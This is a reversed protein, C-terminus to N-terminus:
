HDVIYLQFSQDLKKDFFILVEVLSKSPKIFDNSLNTEMYSKLIELKVPGLSYIFM